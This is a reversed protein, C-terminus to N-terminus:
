SALVAALDTGYANVNEPPLLSAVRQKTKGIGADHKELLAVVEDRKGAQVAKQTLDKVEEVTYEKVGSSVDSETAADSGAASTPTSAPKDQAPAPSKKAAPTDGAAELTMNTVGHNGALKAALAVLEDATNCNITLSYV